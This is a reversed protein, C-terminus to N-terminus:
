GRTARVLGRVAWPLLRVTGVALETLLPQEFLRQLLRAVRLRPEFEQRWLQTYHVAWEDWSLTGRLYQDALPACLETSRLAMAMGDGCFPPIMTATDGLCCIDVWPTAPRYLDVPAVATASEAVARGFALREGLAPNQAAAWAILQDVRKGAWAFASYAALLCVNVRGGEVRNVGAYGGPFCYLEVQLPMEIGTYHTKVGVAHQHRTRPYNPPPLGPVTHRGCAAILTRTQIITTGSKSQLRVGFGTANREYHKVTVGTGLEVGQAQAAEALRQDLAFRSLGWAIGPLETQLVTGRQTVIRAGILTTPQLAAVRDALGLAQLTTQSEPSLFEGCVKHRPLRDREVLLVDWGQNALATAMTSGALGAGIVVADRVM